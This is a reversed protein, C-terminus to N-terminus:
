RRGGKGGGRNNANIRLRRVKGDETLIRINHVRRGDQNRTEASIVQGGTRKKAQEVAKDLSVEALVPNLTLLLLGLLLTRWLHSRYNRM